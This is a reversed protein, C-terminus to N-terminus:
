EFTSSDAADADPLPASFYRYSVVDFLSASICSVGVMVNGRRRACLPARCRFGSEQALQVCLDCFDHTAAHDELQELPMVLRAIAIVNPILRVTGPSSITMVARLPDGMRRGLVDIGFFIVFAASDSGSRFRAPDGDPAFSMVVGGEPGRRLLLSLRYVWWRCVLPCTECSNGTGVAVDLGLVARPTSWFLLTSLSAKLCSATPLAM